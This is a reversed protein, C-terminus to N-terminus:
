RQNDGRYGNDELLGYRLSQLSEIFASRDPLRALDFAAMEYLEQEQPSLEIQIAQVPGGGETRIYRNALDLIRGNEGGSREAMIKAVLDLYFLVADRPDRPQEFSRAVMEYAVPDAERLRSQLVRLIELYDARTLPM